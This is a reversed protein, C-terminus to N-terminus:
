FIPCCAQNPKRFQLAACAAAEFVEKVGEKTKASCETYCVANIKEAMARGDEPKVLKRKTKGQEQISNCNNRLDKKNGVLIIPVNPCFRTIEPTWKEQISELSNPSDISFCMLIVDTDLYSLHRLADYDERSAADCLSLQVQKADVKIDTTIDLFAPIYAEPFQDRSVVFLLCTKGCAGDGVIVLRKRIAAM